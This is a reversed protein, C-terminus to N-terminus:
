EALSAEHERSGYSAHGAEAAQAKVEDVLDCVKLQAKYLAQKTPKDQDEPKPMAAACKATILGLRKEMAKLYKQLQEVEPQSSIPGPLDGASDKPPTQKEVQISAQTTSDKATATSPM